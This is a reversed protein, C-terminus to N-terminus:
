VEKPSLAHATRLIAHATAASTIAREWQSGIPGSVGASTHLSLAKGLGDQRAEASADSKAEVLAVLHKTAEAIITRLRRETDELLRDIEHVYDDSISPSTERIAACYDTKM